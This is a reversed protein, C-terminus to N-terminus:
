DKEGKVRIKLEEKKKELSNIISHIPESGGGVLLGTLFYDVINLVSYPNNTTWVGLNTFVGLKSFIGIRGFFTIILSVGTCLFWMVRKRKKRPIFDSIQELSREVVVSLAIIGFLIGM